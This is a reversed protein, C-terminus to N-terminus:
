GRDARGAYTLYGRERERQTHTKTEKGIESCRETLWQRRSGSEEGTDRCDGGM